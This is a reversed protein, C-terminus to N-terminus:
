EPLLLAFFLGVEKHLCGKEGKFFKGVALFDRLDLEKSSRLILNDFGRKRLLRVIASGVM